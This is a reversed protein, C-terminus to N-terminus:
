HHSHNRYHFQRRWRNAFFPALLQPFMITLLGAFLMATLLLSLIWIM